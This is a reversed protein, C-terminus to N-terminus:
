RSSSSARRLRCGAGPGHGGRPRLGDGHGADPGQAVRRGAQHPPGGRDRGHRADQLGHPRPRLPPGRRRGSGAGGPGGAGSAALGVEFTMSRLSDALIQRSTESDDVVLVRLGRLDGVLSAPQARQRGARGFTATFRFVSGQGPESEVWIRGGMMEVLRKSISLGLGTGGFKRTTSTDAQTFPQFLKAAQEPTMGIGTDRVAFELVARDDRIELARVSVIVEGEQTFKVANGCLNLLVQGLRLPDGVLDLPVGEDTRFLVELGKEEAKVTVM